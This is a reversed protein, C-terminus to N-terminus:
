EHSAGKGEPDSTEGRNQLMAQLDKAAETLERMKAGSEMFITRIERTQEGMETIDHALQDTQQASRNISSSIEATTATQEEVAAAITTQSANIDGIIRTIEEIAGVAHTTDGQIAEVRAAVDETARATESALDKVESAVVAFGRGADGARAAEITANLALLNTQEAVENITEIVEGIQRSSEGLQAVTAGAQAAVETARRAVSAASNANQSIEEISERMQAAGTAIAQINTNVETAVTETKGIEETVQNMDDRVAVLEGLTEGSKSEVAVTSDITVNFSHELKATNTNFTNAMGGIEDRNLRKVNVDLNGAAIENFGRALEKTMPVISKATVKNVIFIIVLSIVLQIIIFTGLLMVQSDLYEEIQADENHLAVLFSDAQNVFAWETETNQALIELLPAKGASVAGQLSTIYTNYKKLAAKVEGWAQNTANDDTGPDLIEVRANMDALRTEFNELIVPDIDQLRAVEPSLMADVLDAQALKLGAWDAQMQGTQSMSQNLRDSLSSQSGVMVLVRISAVAMTAVVIFMVLASAIIKASIPIRQTKDSVDPPPSGVPKALQPPVRDTPEALTTTQKTM